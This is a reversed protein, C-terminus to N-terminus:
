DIRSIFLQIEKTKVDIMLDYMRKDEQSLGVKFNANSLATILKLELSEKLTIVLLFM